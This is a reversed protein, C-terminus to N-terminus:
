YCSCTRIQSTAARGAIGLRWAGPKADYGFCGRAGRGEGGGGSPGPASLGLFHILYNLRGQTSSGGGSVLDLGTNQRGTDSAGAGGLPKFSDMIARRGAAAPPGDRNRGQQGSARQLGGGAAARGVKALRPSAPATPAGPSCVHPGCPYPPPPPNYTKEVLMLWEFM